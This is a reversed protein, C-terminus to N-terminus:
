ADFTSFWLKSAFFEFKLNWDHIEVHLKLLSSTFHFNFFTPFLRPFSLPAPLFGPSGLSLSSVLPHPFPCRVAVFARECPVEFASGESFSVSRRAVLSRPRSSSSPFPEGSPAIRSATCM